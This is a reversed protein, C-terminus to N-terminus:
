CIIRKAYGVRDQAHLKAVVKGNHMYSLVTAKEIGGGIPYTKENNKRSLQIRQYLKRYLLSFKNGRKRGCAVMYFIHLLVPPIRRSCALRSFIAQM